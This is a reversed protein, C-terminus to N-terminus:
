LSRDRLAAEGARPTRRLTLLPPPPLHRKETRTCSGTLSKGLRWHQPPRGPGDCLMTSAPPPVRAPVTQAAGRRLESPPPHLARWEQPRRAPASSISRRLRCRGWGLADPGVTSPLGTSLRRAEAHARWGRWPSGRSRQRQRTTMVNAPRRPERQGPNPARPTMPTM